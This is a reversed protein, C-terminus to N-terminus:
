KSQCKLYDDLNFDCEIIGAYDDDEISDTYFILSIIFKNKLYRIIKSNMEPVIGKDGRVNLWTETEFVYNKFDIEESM